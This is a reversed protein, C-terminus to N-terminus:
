ALDFEIKEIKRGVQRNYETGDAGYHIRRHCNPCLAAVWRPHDPGEDSLRRLHHPELYPRGKPNKFPAVEGCGECVGRARVLAYAKVAQSREYVKRKRDAPPLAQSAKELAIARLNELPLTFLRDLTDRYGEFSAAEGHPGAEVALEFVIAQRQGGERDARVELHDRILSAEGLYLVKGNGVAKFLHLIKGNEKHTAIGRNGRIFEMTGIQGEGTYWFTGDDQFDDEYGYQKGSDGTFLFIVPHNAPTSIGGQWQGGYAEHLDRRRYIKGVVFEM